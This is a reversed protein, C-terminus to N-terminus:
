ASALVEEMVEVFRHSWTESWLTPGFILQLYPGMVGTIPTFSGWNGMQKRGNIVITRPGWRAPCQLPRSPLLVSELAPLSRPQPQSSTKNYSPFRGFISSNVKRPQWFRTVTPLSDDSNKYPGKIFRWSGINCSGFNTMKKPFKLIRNTFFNTSHICINSSKQSTWTFCQLFCYTITLQVSYM